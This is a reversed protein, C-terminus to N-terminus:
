DDGLQNYAELRHELADITASNHSAIADHVLRLVQLPDLPYDLRPDLSNLLAAVAQRGLANVGGGGQALAQLLTLSPSFSSVAFVGDFSRSTTYTRWSGFHQSQKWYGPSLGCQKEKTDVFVCTVTEGASVRFTATATALSGTSNSDNCTLGTLKWGSPVQESSIYTGPVLGSVVISQGDRIKGTADGSFAFLTPDGSPVTKKTVVITALQTDTFTCTVTEGAAVQFTATASALSGSSDSDDCSLGTLKWGSPVQEQSTYTGPLLDAVTISQGDGISGSADGTFAFQTSSGAPLTQKKVVITGTKTDTFTCTVTEGASVHFTATASSLDGGSAGDDCTLGTLKWGAPVQEHSTYTGPVLNGVTISQGDGITGTADGSFQFQAPDGAPATQKRVVITAPPCATIIRVQDAHLNVQSHIEVTHRDVLEIVFDDQDDLNLGRGFVNTPYLTGAAGLVDTVNLTHQLIVIGLITQDTHVTGDLRAAPGKNPTASESQVFQSSVLTGAPIAGGTLDASDDYTGPQNIDVPTDAALRVCQQEDFAFMTTDSQLCAGTVPCPDGPHPPFDVGAPPSQLLQIQGTAGDLAAQAPVATWALCLLALVVAPAALRRRM